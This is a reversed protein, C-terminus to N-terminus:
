FYLYYDVEYTEGPELPIPDFVVRSFLIPDGTSETDTLFLGLERITLGTGGTDINLAAEFSIYNDGEGAAYRQPTIEIRSPDGEVPLSFQDINTELTTAVGSSGFALYKLAYNEYTASADGGLANIVFLDKLYKRGGDVILNKGKFLVEGNEKKIIVYGRPGFSDKLDFNDRINM